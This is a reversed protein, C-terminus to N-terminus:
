ALIPGQRDSDGSAACSPKSGPGTPDQSHVLRNGVMRLTQGVESVRQFMWTVRHVRWFMKAVESVDDREVRQIDIYGQSSEM